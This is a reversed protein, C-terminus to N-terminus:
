KRPSLWTVNFAEGDDVIALSPKPVVNVPKELGTQTLYQRTFYLNTIKLIPSYQTPNKGIRNKM